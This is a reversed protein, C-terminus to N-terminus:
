IPIPAYIYCSYLLCFVLQCHSYFGCRQLLNIKRPTSFQLDYIYTSLSAILDFIARALPRELKVENTRARQLGALQKIKLLSKVNVVNKKCKIISTILLIFIKKYKM